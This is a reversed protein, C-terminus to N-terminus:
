FCLAQFKYKCTTAEIKFLGMATVSQALDTLKTLSVNYWNVVSTVASKLINTTLLLHLLLYFCICSAATIDCLDEDNNLM